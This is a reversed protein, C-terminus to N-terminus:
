RPCSAPPIGAAFLQEPNTGDGGVGGLEKPTGLKVDLKNDSSVALGERGGTATAQGTYLIRM